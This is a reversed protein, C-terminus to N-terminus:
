DLGNNQGSPAEIRVREAILREIEQAALHAQPHWGALIDGDECQDGLGRGKKKAVASWEHDVRDEVIVVMYGGYDYRQREQFTPLM